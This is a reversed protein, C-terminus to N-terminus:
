NRRIPQKKRRRIKNVFRVDEEQIHGSDMLMLNCLDVTAETAYIPSKLGHKVINPVNGSHDIHAHSLVLANIDSPTFPFSNNIEYFDKRRGQFLGCDLLTKSQETKILHM